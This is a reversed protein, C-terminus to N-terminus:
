LFWCPDRGDITETESPFNQGAGSTWLSTGPPPSLSFVTLSIVGTTWRTSYCLAHVLPYVEQGGEGEAELRRPYVEQDEEGASHNSQDAMTGGTHTHAM